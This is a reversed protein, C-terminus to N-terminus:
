WGNGVRGAQHQQLGNGVGLLRYTGDPYEVAGEVGPLSKWKPPRGIESGTGRGHALPTKLCIIASRARASYGRIDPKAAIHM